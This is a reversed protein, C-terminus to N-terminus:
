CRRESTREEHGRPDELMECVPAPAKNIEEAELTLALLVQSWLEGDRVRIGTFFKM